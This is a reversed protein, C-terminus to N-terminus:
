DKYSLPIGYTKEYVNKCMEFNIKKMKESAEKVSLTKDPYIPEMIHITYEQVPLGDGDVHEKSDEMTIFCPIIPTNFKCAFKFAGDKFPRPKKYNWWMYQEPYILIFSDKKTIVDLAEFFKKMTSPSSSLPLTNCHKFFKDFGKPPATYNGERIIRYFDKKKTSYKQFTKYIAINEFIHFHNSTVFASGKVKNINEAGIVDKIIIQNAAFLNDMGKEAFRSIFFRAIKNKLSKRLYDIEDPLLVKSPPDNEVDTDFNGEKEFKKIKELIELREKSIM